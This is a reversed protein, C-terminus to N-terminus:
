VNDNFIKELREKEIGTGSDQITITVKDNEDSTWVHIDGHVPTFKIANSLVNRLCIHLLTPDCWAESGTPIEVKFTIKKEDMAHQLLKRIEDIIEVMRVTQPQYQISNRQQRGWHLLNEILDLSSSSLRQLEAIIKANESDRFKELMLESYQVLSAVPSRLDHAIISFVKEKMELSQKLEKNSQNLEHTRRSIIKELNKNVYELKEHITIKEKYTKIWQDILISIQV